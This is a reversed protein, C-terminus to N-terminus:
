QHPLRNGVQVKGTAKPPVAPAIAKPVIRIGVRRLRTPLIKPVSSLLLAKRTLTQFDTNSIILALGSKPIPGPLLAKLRM